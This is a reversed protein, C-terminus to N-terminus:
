DCVCVCMCLCMCVSVCHVLARQDEETSWIHSLLVTTAMAVVECLSHPEGSLLLPALSFVELIHTNTHSLSLPKTHHLDTGALDGGRWPSVHNLFMTRRFCETLQLVDSQFLLFSSTHLPLLIFSLSLSSLPLPSLLHILIIIIITIIIM